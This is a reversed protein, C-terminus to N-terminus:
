LTVYTKQKDRTVFGAKLSGGILLKSDGEDLENWQTKKERQLEKNVNTIIIRRDSSTM